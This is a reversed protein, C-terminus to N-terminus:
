RSRARLDAGPLVARADHREGGGGRPRACRDLPRVGLGLRASPRAAGARDPRDARDPHGRGLDGRGQRVGGEGRRQEHEARLRPRLYPAAPGPDDDRAGGAGARVDGQRDPRRPQPVSVQLAKLKPLHRSVPDNLLIRGDEVLMMIAVSTFPKTMSYLRFIADKTMPAGSQPDRQGLAEFYAVKGRRAVLAVAGPYRGKAIEGKVVETVRALKPSSLGVEEPTATPLGQSWAAGPLLLVLLAVLAVSRKM